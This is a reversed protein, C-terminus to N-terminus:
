STSGAGPTRTSFIALRSLFMARPMFACDTRIRAGTGPLPTTPTSTGFWLGVGTPMRSIRSDASQPSDLASNGMARPLSTEPAGMMASRARMGWRSMAPAVPEPLDTQTFLM